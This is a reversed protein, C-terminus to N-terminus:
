KLGLVDAVIRAIVIYANTFPEDRFFTTRAGPRGIFPRLTWAMQIGVFVYLVGWAIVMTRHRRNAAILPRYTRRIVVQAALTALLFMAGNFAQILDYAGFSLYFVGTLPALAALTVAMAAQGALIASLSKRLDDALGMVTSLVVFGPLCILTTVGLLIPVKVASYLIQWLRQATEISYAGMVAGYVPTFLCILAPLVWWAPPSYGRPDFRGRGRLLLDATVLLNM